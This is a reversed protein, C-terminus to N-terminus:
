DLCYVPERGFKAVVGGVGRRNSRLGSRGLGNDLELTRGFRLRRLTIASSTNEFGGKASRYDENNTRLNNTRLQTGLSTASRCRVYASKWPEILGTRQPEDVRWTGM